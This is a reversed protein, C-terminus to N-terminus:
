ANGHYKRYEKLNSIARALKTDNLTKPGVSSGFIGNSASVAQHVHYGFRKDLEKMGYQVGVEAIQMGIRAEEHRDKTISWKLEKMFENISGVQEVLQSLTNFFKMHELLNHFTLLRTMLSGPIHPITDAYKLRSCVPCGCPLTTYRSPKSFSRSVEIKQLPSRVTHFLLYKGNAANRVHTSSDATILEAAGMKTLWLLPLIKVLDSIGLIHYHKYKKGPMTMLDVVKRIGGLQNTGKRPFGFAAIDIEDREVEARYMKYIEPYFGHFINILRLDDRKHKLMVDTNKRQVWALKKALEPSANDPVPIELVMGMDAHANHTEIVTEPKIFGTQGHLLQYGGSDVMLTTHKEERDKKFRRHGSGQVAVANLMAFDLNLDGMVMANNVDLHVYEDYNEPKLGLIACPDHAYYRERQVIIERDPCEIWIYRGTTRKVRIPQDKFTHYKIYMGVGDLDNEMAAPVWRFRGPTKAVM